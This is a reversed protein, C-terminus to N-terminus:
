ATTTMTKQTAPLTETNHSADYSTSSKNSARELSDQDFIFTGPNNNSGEEEPSPSPLAIHMPFQCARGLHSAIHNNSNEQQPVIQYPLQHTTMRARNRPNVYINSEYRWSEARSVRKSKSDNETACCNGHNQCGIITPIVILVCIGLISALAIVLYFYLKEYSIGMLEIITSKSDSEFVSVVETVNIFSVNELELGESPVLFQLNEVNKVWLSTKSNIELTFNEENQEDLMLLSKKNQFEITLSKCQSIELHLLSRAVPGDVKIQKSNDEDCTCNVASLSPKANNYYTCQFCNVAQIIASILVFTKIVVEKKYLPLNSKM